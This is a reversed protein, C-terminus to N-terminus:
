FLGIQRGAAFAGSKTTSAARCRACLPGARHHAQHGHLAQTLRTHIKAIKLSACREVMM